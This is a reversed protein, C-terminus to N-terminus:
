SSFSFRPSKGDALAQRYVAAAAAVDQLATGTSDFVIIEEESERAPKLGAVIEGLQAYVGAASMAGAALAHHLDGIAACQETLDTVLKSRALLATDLEQKDENDAGVGAVFTGPRVMERAIFWRRAPTCTIVIDSAAVAAPLDTVASIALATEAGLAAAFARSKEANQDYALIRGPSRVRLLARLQAPAQAGCGCMLATRCERRALYKAAVATAAATRLATIAMSDMVALAQGTVAECLVVVGQITPLGHRPGNHPFNANTKAAFYPQDLTLLAAKIHFGGDEAHLGLIGPPPAKGLAHQRFADEVTAICAEPTLLREVDSRSLLLAGASRSTGSTLGSTSVIGDSM